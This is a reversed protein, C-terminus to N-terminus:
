RAGFDRPSAGFEQKFAKSFHAPSSFGWSLAIDALWREPRDSNVLEDKCRELRRKWIYRAITLEGDDFVEHM